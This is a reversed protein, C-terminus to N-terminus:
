WRITACTQTLKLSSQFWFGCLRNPRKSSRRGPHKVSRLRQSGTPLTLSSLFPIFRKIQFNIRNPKSFLILLYFTRPVRPESYKSLNGVPISILKPQNTDLSCTIPEQGRNLGLTLLTTTLTWRRPQFSNQKTVGKSALQPTKRMLSSQIALMDLYTISLHYSGFDNTLLDTRSWLTARDWIM